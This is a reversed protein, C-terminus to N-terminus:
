YINFRSILWGSRDRTLGVYVQIREGRGGGAAVAGTAFPREGTDVTTFKFGSLSKGSLFHRLVQGAQNASYYGTSSGRVNLSVTPSLYAAILRVDGEDLAREVARFVQAPGDSGGSDAPPFLSQGAFAPCLTLVTALLFTALGNRM